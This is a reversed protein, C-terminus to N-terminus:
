RQSAIRTANVDAVDMGYFAEVPRGDPSNLVVVESGGGGCGAVLGLVSLLPTVQSYRM